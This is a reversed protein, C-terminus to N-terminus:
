HYKLQLYGLDKCFLIVGVNIFEQREVKPMFRIVAYEFLYNDM